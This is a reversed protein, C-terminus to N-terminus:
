NKSLKSRSSNGIFFSDRFNNDKVNVGDLNSKFLNPYLQEANNHDLVPINNHYMNSNINPVYNNNISNSLYKNQNKLESEKDINESYTEFINNKFCNELKYNELHVSSCNGNLNGLIIPFNYKTSEPRINLSNNINCYPINRELIRMNIENQNEFNCYSIYSNNAM